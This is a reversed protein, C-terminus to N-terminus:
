QRPTSSALQWQRFQTAASSRTDSAKQFHLRNSYKGEGKIYDIAEQGDSVVQVPNLLNAKAFARLTMLVDTESDEALLILSQDPM